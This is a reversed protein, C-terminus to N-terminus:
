QVAQNLPKLLADIKIKQEQDVRYFLIGPPEIKYDKLQLVWEAHIKLGGDTMQLRGEIQVKRSINHLKFTGQVVAKQMADIGPDFPSTLKGYFSAFPYKGSELTERMDKDRKGIGTKLTNLDLYFDVTSDPLTIKGVLHDSEGTFSHLPVTSKFIVHGTETKYAQAWVMPLNLLMLYTAALCVAKNFKITRMISSIPNITKQEM